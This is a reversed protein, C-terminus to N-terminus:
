IILLMVVVALPHGTKKQNKKKPRREARRVGGSIQYNGYKKGAGTIM